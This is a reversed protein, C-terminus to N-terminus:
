RCQRDRDETLRSRISVSDVTIVHIPRTTAIKCYTDGGGGGVGREGRGGGCRLGESIRTEAETMMILTACWTFSTNSENVYLMDVCSDIGPLSLSLKHFTWLVTLRSWSSVSLKHFM